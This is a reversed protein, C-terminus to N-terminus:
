STIRPVEGLIIRLLNVIEIVIRLWGLFDAAEIALERDDMLYAVLMGNRTEVTAMGSLLRVIALVIQFLNDDTLIQRFREIMDSSVGLLEAIRLLLEIAQRLGEPSAIPKQIRRILHLLELLDSIKSLHAFNLESLAVSRTMRFVGKM